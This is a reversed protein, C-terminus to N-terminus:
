KLFDLYIGAILALASSVFIVIFIIKESSVDLSHFIYKMAEKDEYGLNEIQGIKEKLRYDKIIKIRRESIQYRHIFYIIFGITGIYWTFKIWYDSTNTLVIIIRYAVTAIIGAM